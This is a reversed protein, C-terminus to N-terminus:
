IRGRRELEAIIRSRKMDLWIWEQKVQPKADLLRQVNHLRKRLEETTAHKDSM